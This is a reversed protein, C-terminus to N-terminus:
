HPEVIRLDMEIVANNGGENQISIMYETSAALFFGCSRSLGGGSDKDGRVLLQVFDTGYDSIVPGEFLRAQNDDSFNHNVNKFFRETGNNTVIADKSIDVYLPAVTTDFILGSLVVQQVAPTLLRFNLVGNNALAFRRSYGFENGAEACYQGRTTHVPSYVGPATLASLVEVQNGGFDKALLNAM